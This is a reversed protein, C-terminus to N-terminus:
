HELVQRYFAVTERAVQAQTYYALVRERGRRGLDNGLEASARLRALANALAAADGEPVVLGADGIVHPIEGSDSGVVPIGCAMAEILVRGFQEMWNPRTLSPLVVVDLGAYVSPMERSPIRTHWSVRTALGLAEVREQLSAALPGDGYFRMRWDGGLQALAGALVFLGKEEVLRGAYGITFPRDPNTSRQPATYLEPDVGFQPIVALPCRYGKSALVEAAAHNGAIGGDAHRYVDSELWRFPPPYSRRLNQWTFFVARAGAKRAARLALWTALNYPEEDIHVLDPRMASLLRALRPYYHTHYSGNRSMPTVVLRYGPTASEELALRSDGERWYPPVVVTLDIDPEVAMAATKQRYAGVVLAKSIMVVRM